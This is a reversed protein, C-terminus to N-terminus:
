LDSDIMRCAAIVLGVGAEDYAGLAWEGYHVLMLTSFARGAVTLPRLGTGQLIDAAQDPTARFTAAAMEADPIRVPLTITKGQIRWVKDGVLEAMESEL